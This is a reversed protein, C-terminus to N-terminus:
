FILLFVMMFCDSNGGKFCLDGCGRLHKFKEYHEKKEGMELGFGFGGGYVGGDYYVVGGM